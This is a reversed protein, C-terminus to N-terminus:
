EDLLVAISRQCYYKYSYYYRLILGMCISSKYSARRVKMPSFNSITTPKELSEYHIWNALSCTSLYFAQSRDCKWHKLDIITINGYNTPPPNIGVRFAPKIWWLPQGMLFKNKIWTSEIKCLDYIRNVRCKYFLYYIINRSKIAKRRMFILFFLPQNRAFAFYFIYIQSLFYISNHLPKKKYPKHEKYQTANCLVFPIPCPFLVLPFM